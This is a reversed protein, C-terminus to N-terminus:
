PLIMKKRGLPRLILAAEVPPLAERRYMISSNHHCHGSSTHTLQVFATVSTVLDHIGTTTQSLTRQQSKRATSRSPFDRRHRSDVDNGLKKHPGTDSIFTDATSAPSDFINLDNIDSCAAPYIVKLDQPVDASYIALSYDSRSEPAGYPRYQGYPLPVIQLIADKQNLPLADVM